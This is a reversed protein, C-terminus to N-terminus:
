IKADFLEKVIEWTMVYRKGGIDECMHVDWTRMYRFGGMSAYMQKRDTDKWIRM